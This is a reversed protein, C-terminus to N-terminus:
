IIIQLYLFVTILSYKVFKKFILYTYWPHEESLDVEYIFYLNLVTRFKKKMLCKKLNM